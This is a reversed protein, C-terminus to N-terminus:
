TPPALYVYWEGQPSHELIKQHLSGWGYYVTDSQAQSAALVECYSAIQVDSGFSRHEYLAGDNTRYFAAAKGLSDKAASVDTVQYAISTWGSSSDTGVHQSLHGQSLLNSTIVFVTDGQIQSASFNTVTTYGFLPTSTIKPPIGAVFSWSASATRFEYLSGSFNVFVAEKGTAGDKGAGIQTPSRTVGSPAGVNSWGALNNMGSHEYIRGDTFRLFVTDLAAQSASIEAVGTAVFTGYYNGVTGQQVYETVNGLNDLVFVGEDPLFASSVKHLGCSVQAVNNAVHYEKANTGTGLHQILEGNLVYFSNDLRSSAGAALTTATMLQRQELNEVVPKFGSRKPRDAKRNRSRPSLAVASTLSRLWNRVM